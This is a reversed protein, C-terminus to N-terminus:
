ASEAVFMSDDWLLFQEVDVAEYDRRVRVKWMIHPLTMKKTDMEREDYMNSWTKMNDFHKSLSLKMDDSNRLKERHELVGQMALTTEAKKLQIQIEAIQANCREKLISERPFDEFRNFL